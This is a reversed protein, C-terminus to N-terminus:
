RRTTPASRSRRSLRTPCRQGCSRTRPSAASSPSGGDRSRGGRAARRARPRDRAPLEGGPRRPPAELEEPALDRVTYLLSTKLGSFSFDLGPVRAVPFDYATPDGQKALADIEGGARTASGSCGRARTSRRAPPTTSRRASCATVAATPSTSCCRTGAARSCAPSRRSCTSRGCTSRPSTATCTTSRRDAAAAAGLRAGERRLRRRAARRDPRAPGHRRDSSTTSRREPTALAEEIVPAVLELHRRSAVEPVVGGFRAHLEDQSAVVSALSRATGAHRGCRRDRRM